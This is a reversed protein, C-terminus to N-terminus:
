HGEGMARLLALQGRPVEFGYYATGENQWSPDVLLGDLDIAWVHQLAGDIGRAAAYGVVPRLQPRGRILARTSALCQGPAPGHDLYAIPFPRPEFFRGRLLVAAATLGGRAAVWARLEAPTM